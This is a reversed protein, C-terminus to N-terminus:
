SVAIFFNHWTNASAIGKIESTLLCCYGNSFHFKMIVNTTKTKSTQPWDAFVAFM